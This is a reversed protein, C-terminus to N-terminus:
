TQQKNLDIPVVVDEGTKPDKQINLYGEAVMSELMAEAWEEPNSTDFRKSGIDKLILNTKCIVRGGYGRKNKFEGWWIGDKLSFKYNFGQELNCNQYEKVFDMTEKGMLGNITSVGYSDALRGEICHDSSIDGRIIYGGWPVIGQSAEYFLGTISHLEAM